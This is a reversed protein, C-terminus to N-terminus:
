ISCNAFHFTDSRRTSYDIKYSHSGKVTGSKWWGALLLWPDFYEEVKPFEKGCVGLGHIQSKFM